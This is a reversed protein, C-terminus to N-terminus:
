LIVYLMFHERINNMLFHFLRRM